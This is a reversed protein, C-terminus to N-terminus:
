LELLFVGAYKSGLLFLICPETGEEDTEDKEAWGTVKRRNDEGLPNTAEVLRYMKGDFGHAIITRRNGESLDYVHRVFIEVVGSFDQGECIHNEIQKATMYKKCFPCKEIFDHEKHNVTMKM